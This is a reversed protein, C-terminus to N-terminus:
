RKAYYGIRDVNCFEGKTTEIAQYYSAIVALSKISEPTSKALDEVASKGIKIVFASEYSGKKSPDVSITFDSINKYSTLNQPNGWVSVKSKDVIQEKLPQSSRQIVILEGNNIEASWYDDKNTEDPRPFCNASPIKEPEKASPDIVSSAVMTLVSSYAEKDNEIAQPYTFYYLRNDKATLLFVRKEAFETGRWAGFNTSLKLYKTGNLNLDVAESTHKAIQNATYDWDIQKYFNERRSTGDYSLYFFDLIKDNNENLIYSGASFNGTGAGRNSNYKATYKTPYHITIGSQEDTYKLWDEPLTFTSENETLKEFPTAEEQAENTKIPLNTVSLLEASGSGTEKAARDNSKNLGGIQSLAYGSGFAGVILASIILKRWLNNKKKKKPPKEVSLRISEDNIEM